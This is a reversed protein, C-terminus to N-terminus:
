STRIRQTSAGSVAVAVHQRQIGVHLTHRSAPVRNRLPKLLAGALLVARLGMQADVCQLQVFVSLWYRAFRRRTVGGGHVEGLLKRRIRTIRRLCDCIDCFPPQTHRLLASPM